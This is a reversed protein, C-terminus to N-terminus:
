ASPNYRERWSDDFRAFLDFRLELHMFNDYVQV